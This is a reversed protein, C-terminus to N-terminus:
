QAKKRYKHYDKMLANFLYQALKEAGLHSPHTYDKAALPPKESVWRVMSNEGGMSEFQNYFSFGHDYALKAQLAVLHPLGVATKYEGDYRFAKDGASILLVDSDRFTTKIKTLAPTVLKEYYSYDTDKARFLLNVGYQLIVLDYPNNKQIANFFDSDLKDLEVGTIGRFSFNDVFVGNESEFSVGYIPLQSSQSKIKLVSDENRVLVRRNVWDHGELVVAEGNVEIAAGESKGYIISKETATPVAITNDQYTGRGLGKFVHGSLYLNRQNKTKFSIDEWGSAQITATQRFGGVQTYMPLFGVGHGGFERQLLKRFTQSILDGEIMSDGLYAIRIKGEGTAKLHKLKQILHPLAVVSDGPYFNTIQHPSQYLNFEQQEEKKEIVVIKEQHNPEDPTAKNPFLESILNVKNFPEFDWGLRLSLISAWLYLVFCLSVLLVVKHSKNEM